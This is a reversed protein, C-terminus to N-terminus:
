PDVQNLTCLGVGFLRKIGALVWGRTDSGIHLPVLQM